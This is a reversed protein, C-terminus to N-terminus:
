GGTNLAKAKKSSRFSWMFGNYVGVEVLQGGL